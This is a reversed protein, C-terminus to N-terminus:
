KWTVHQNQPHVYSTDFDEKPWGTVVFGSDQRHATRTRSSSRLKEGLFIPHCWLLQKKISHRGLISPMDSNQRKSGSFHLWCSFHRLFHRTLISADKCGFCQQKPPLHTAVAFCPSLTMSFILCGLLSSIWNDIKLMGQYIIFPIRGYAWFRKNM